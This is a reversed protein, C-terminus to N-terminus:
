MLSFMMSLVRLFDTLKNWSAFENSKGTGAGIGRLM